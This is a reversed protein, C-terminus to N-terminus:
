RGVRKITREYTRILANVLRETEWVLGEQTDRVFPRDFGITMKDSGKEINDAKEGWTAGDVPDVSKEDIYFAYHKIDGAISSTEVKAGHAGRLHMTREYSEPTYQEYVLEDISKTYSENLSKSLDVIMESSQRLLDFKLRKLERVLKQTAKLDIKM